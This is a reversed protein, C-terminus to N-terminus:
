LITYAKENQLSKRSIKKHKKKLIQISFYNVQNLTPEFIVEAETEFIRVTWATKSVSKASTINSRDRIFIISSRGTLTHLLEDISCISLQPPFFM